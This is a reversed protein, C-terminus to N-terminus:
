KILKYGITAAIASLVMGWISDTFVMTWTYNALTAMNTLDYFVYMIFGILAGRKGAEFSDRSYTVSGYFLAIALTVYVLVAAIYNVSLKSKQISYFLTDHYQQRFMLWFIDICLLIVFLSIIGFLDTM